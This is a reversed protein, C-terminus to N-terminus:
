ARGWFSSMNAMDLSGWPCGGPAPSQLIATGLCRLSHGHPKVKGLM